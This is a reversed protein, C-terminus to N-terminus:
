WFKLHKNYEKEGNSYSILTWEEGNESALPCDLFLNGDSFKDTNLSQSLIEITTAKSSMPKNWQAAKVAFKHVLKFCRRLHKKNM